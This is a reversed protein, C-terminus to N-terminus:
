KNIENHYSINAKDSIEIHMYRHERVIIAYSESSIRYIRKRFNM